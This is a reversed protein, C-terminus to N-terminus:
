PLGFLLGNNPLSATHAAEKGFLPGYLAPFNLEMGTRENYQKGCRYCHYQEYGFVIKKQVKRTNKSKCHPCRM